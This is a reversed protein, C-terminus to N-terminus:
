FICLLLDFSFLAFGLPFFVIPASFVSRSCNNMQAHLRYRWWNVFARMKLGRSVPAQATNEYVAMANLPSRMRIRRSKATLGDPYYSCVTWRENLFYTKHTKDIDFWLWSEAMFKEGPYEPFQHSLLVSKRVVEATDFQQGFSVWSSCTDGCAALNFQPQLKMSPFERLGRIVGVSSDDEVRSIADLIRTLAGNKLYDDSDVILIWEGAALKAALNIARHKGGNEVFHYRVLDPYRAALGCIVDRTEDTSGDDIVLWEVLNRSEVQQAISDFLRPLLGARNYTPTFVTLKIKRKNKM